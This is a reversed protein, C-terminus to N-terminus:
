RNPSGESDMAWRYFNNANNRCDFSPYWSTDRPPCIIRGEIVTKRIIPSQTFELEAVLDNLNIEESTRKNFLYQGSKLKTKSLPSKPSSM